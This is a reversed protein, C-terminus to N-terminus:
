NPGASAATTSHIALTGDNPPEDESGVIWVNGPSPAVGALLIDSLFSGTTPNPSPAVSWANGNWNMLLTRQQGSGNAFSSSGFAWIDTPSVATIGQLSNSQFVSKPGMNPSTVVSWSAGDWHEILTLTAAQKPPAVPTSFGVAWVDNPALAVVGNLQSAGKGVSPSPVTKWSTGDYHMVLTRSSDNEPGTFGVAWVDNMADASVAFLFADSAPLAKATWATGDWHEFLFNLIQGGDSLMSGVAWIDNASIATLARLGPQDGAPFSPGPFVNWQTGNWREIVQGTHGQGIGVTGVVWADTPSIDAVGGLFSANDGNITPAPFATWKAGDFHITSQGVAWIDRPSFASVAQLGNNFNENPTPVVHFISQGAAKVPLHAAAM